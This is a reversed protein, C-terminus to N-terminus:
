ANCSGNDDILFDDDLSDDGLSDDLSNDDQAVRLVETNRGPSGHLERCLALDKRALIVFRRM